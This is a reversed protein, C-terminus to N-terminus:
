TAELTTGGWLPLFCTDVVRCLAFVATPGLSGARPNCLGGVFMEGPWSYGANGTGGRGGLKDEQMEGRQLCELEGEVSPESLASWRFDCLWCAALSPPCHRRELSGSWSDREAASGRCSGCVGGVGASQSRAKGLWVQCREQARPEDRASSDGQDEGEGSEVWGATLSPELEGGQTGPCCGGSQGVGLVAPCVIFSAM